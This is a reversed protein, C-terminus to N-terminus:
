KDFLLIVFCSQAWLIILVHAVLMSVINSGSFALPFISALFYKLADNKKILMNDSDINGDKLSNVTFFLFGFYPISILSKSKFYRMSLRIAYYKKLLFYINGLFAIGCILLPSIELLLNAIGDNLIFTMSFCLVLLMLWAALLYKYNRLSHPLGPSAMGMESERGTNSITAADRGDGQGPAGCHVSKDDM